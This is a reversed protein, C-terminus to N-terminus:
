YRCGRTERCFSTAKQSTEIDPAGRDRKCATLIDALEKMLFISESLGEYKENVTEDASGDLIANVEKYVGKVRSRIM